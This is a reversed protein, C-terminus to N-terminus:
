GAPAIGAAAEAKARSKEIAWVIWISVEYLFYVPIMMLMMSFVDPPTFCAAFAAIGVIAYRRGKRLASAGIAGVRAMLSLVVPMQFCLGFALILTTVLSFYENVKPILQIPIPGEPQQLGLAFYMAFPLAVFYVFAAGAIFMVPAAVLFPAVAARENKYLGPAVFAYLQYAVVPFSIALGGILALKLYTFFVEFPHTYQFKADKLADPGGISLIVDRYPEQLLAYLHKAFGYCIATGVVVAIAAILLRNRLEVLHDLLPARSAEVEDPPDMASM